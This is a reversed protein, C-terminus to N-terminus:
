RWLTYMELRGQEQPQLTVPQTPIDFVNLAEPAAVMGQAHAWERVALAGSIQAADRRLTRLNTNLLEKRSMLGEQYDTRLQNQAGLVALVLLSALYM